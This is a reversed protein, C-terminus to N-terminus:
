PQAYSAAVELCKCCLFVTGGSLELRYVDQDDNCQDCTQGAWAASLWTHGDDPRAPHAVKRAGSPKVNFSRIILKADPM